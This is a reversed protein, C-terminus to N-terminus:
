VLWATVDAPLLGDRTLQDSAMLVEGTPLPVPEAGM